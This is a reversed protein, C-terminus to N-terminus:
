YLVFRFSLVLRWRAAKFFIFRAAEPPQGLSEPIVCGHDGM